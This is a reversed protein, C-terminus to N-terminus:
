LDPIDTSPLKEVFPVLAGVLFSLRQPMDAFAYDVGDKVMKLIDLRHKSRAFGVITGSLQAALEKCDLFSKDVSSKDENNSSQLEHRHYAQWNFKSCFLCFLLQMACTKYLIVSGEM